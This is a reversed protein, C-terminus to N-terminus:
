LVNGRSITSSKNSKICHFLGTSIILRPDNPYPPYPLSKVFNTEIERMPRRGHGKGADRVLWMLYWHWSYRKDSSSQQMQGKRSDEPETNTQFVYNIDSPPEGGSDSACCGTSASSLRFSYSIILCNDSWALIDRICIHFPSLFFFPTLIYFIEGNRPQFTCPLPPPIRRHM